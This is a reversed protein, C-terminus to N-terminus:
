YKKYPESMAHFTQPIWVRYRGNPNWDNGSSSFDCFNILKPTKNEVNELDTGLVAPVTLTIWPFTGTKNKKIKAQIVGQNNCKITACEDIDGDNFRSDRAFLLPGRVIAQSNNLKVVKTEIKFDLTVKDANEWIREIYLYGGKHTIEQEEGNIYAKMKEIQTPIRLALTFKEKKQVGINVNVKGHIPYDSEVNLHVKNKKNLSITAQLPLYLNLYIHNDKITCATKPILAFGRPGNANCCNIHMGCQEEGPQRRGELPSYKSIQSGDNKMTAMLANYMTHEFEEAYFSNGTKCLLRHCLQMYTFTVCTEMTHYTPLTQKEKGKYWCEFAAGSGAINIEDEQINNVAKEAIKIYFPDNVITGLEILGEYCSMMEYAKQGNEFSWWSKPFASRESVPINKLTKTILQSSGEREISSVISKAFSLYRPNRTIDYLYVVPELISCSAMGLYYGTAAININHIQLQEMLHNILREVANLAKKDGTLRYYSLLSLSTYKRGWIDWNTLQAERKYNGIYGDSTQTNMLKEVSNTILNYLEKDKTYQYSAIAGLLWKGFFESQRLHDENRHKFPEILHDTNQSKVRHEICTNIRNGIYGDIHINEINYEQSLAPLINLICLGIIWKKYNM